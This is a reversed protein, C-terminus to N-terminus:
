TVVYYWVNITLPSIAASTTVLLDDGNTGAIFPGDMIVGPKLTASPAFEGDFLARSTGRVFAGTGFYLQLTGAVTGGVQIQVKTVVIKENAAGIVLVASTQQTAYQAAEHVLNWPDSNLGVHPAMLVVSAGNRNTWLSAADGDAGVDTPIAVSARGAILNPNGAAPSGHAAGGAATVTGDVTLSGGGDSVPIVTGSAVGEVLLARRTSIRVPAFQNETVAAPATDDLQGVLGAAAIGTGISDLANVVARQRDATTANMVLGVAGVTPTSPAASAADALAAAAPLETDSTVTGSVPQTVASNDVKLANAATVTARRGRTTEDEIVSVQARKSDIRAAAADNETLATGATEDFVFGAPQVKTTGDTFAANDVVNEADRVPQTTTGTPDTRIPNGATGFKTKTGASESHLEVSQLKSLDTLEEDSVVYDALAGNDVTTNDAM